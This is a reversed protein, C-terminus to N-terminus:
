SGLADISESIKGTPAFLTQEAPLAALLKENLDRWYHLHSSLPYLERSVFVSEEFGYAHDGPRYLAELARDLVSSEAERDALTVPAGGGKADSTGVGGFHKLAIDGAEHALTTECDLLDLIETESAGM